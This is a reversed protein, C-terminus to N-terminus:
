VTVLYVINKYYKLKKGKLYVDKNPNFHDSYTIGECLEDSLLFYFHRKSIKKYGKLEIDYFIVNTQKKFRILFSILLNFSLLEVVEVTYKTGSNIQHIIRLTIRQYM